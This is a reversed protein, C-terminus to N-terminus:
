TLPPKEAVFFLTNENM